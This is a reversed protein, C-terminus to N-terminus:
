QGKSVIYSKLDQLLKNHDFALTENIEDIPYFNADAADDGAKLTEFNDVEVKYFISVVHKRPDRCLIRLYYL